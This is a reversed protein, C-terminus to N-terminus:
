TPAANGEPVAGADKEVARERLRSDRLEGAFELIPYAVSTLHGNIRKLDRMVDLHIASTEISELRGERLRGFHSDAAALEAARTTAKEALLRRALTVDRTAFVNFALRMNDMVRGHFRRIEDLGEPSFAYRNKIKKAALEMLNKDIIDGVHELNTTFTIVEVYRRSEEETMESKSVQVLYLKIAEHLDDVVNDAKEVEKMLKPDSREFVILAQRLMDAVRDGMNLTERMACALAESPSEVVTPDLHKPKTSAESQPLDPLIRSALTAVLAVAPLFLAAVALNFATHFNIAIRGPDPEIMALWAAIPTVLFLAPLAVAARMVLNGLPVRRAAPPSGSLTLFPALSGGVNAGLVLALALPVPLAQAAALSMVLLVISLSSHVLWSVAVAAIFGLIPEGALGTLLSRFLASDRLPAAAYGIHILALLMLGLGIFIRAVGRARDADTSMFVLVGLAVLVSWLWKVDLSFVQAVVASGVDAGLVVALALPLAILGRGAFSALLLTTATSSQLIGTVGVGALFARIRTRAYTAIARRLASGFARTMGTRVMRVGWLLLAVSGIFTAFLETGSM